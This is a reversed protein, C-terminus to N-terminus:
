AVGGVRVAARAGSRTRESPERDTSSQSGDAILRLLIGATFLSAVLSSGGYSVFPLTIGKTPVLGLVVAVNFLMQLLLLGTLGLTLYSLFPANRSLASKLARVGIVAFCGLVGMVGLFGLEEGVVAFIFDTHAAPLFFLKQKSEGLGAGFFGGSGFTMLSETIQYGLDSRHVWPDLFAEVRRMRYASSAVLHLAIPIVAVVVGFLLGLRAGAVFLMLFTVLLLMASTGFDPEGLLLVVALGPVLLHPLVGTSFRHIRGDQVKTALSRALWIILALKMVEGAQIGIPGLDIWRRAGGAARGIGPILVLVLLAFAVGLLPWANKELLRPPISAGVVLAFLGVLAFVAQRAGFYHVDHYSQAALASSSSSVMVVGLGTLLLVCCLAPLDFRPAFAQAM